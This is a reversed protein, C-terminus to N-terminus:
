KFQGADEWSYCKGSGQRPSSGRNALGPSPPQPGMSAGRKKLPTRQQKDSPSPTGQLLKSLNTQLKQLKSDLVSEISQCLRELDTHTTYTPM